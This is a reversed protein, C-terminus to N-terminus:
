TEHSCQSPTRMARARDLQRILAEVHVWSLDGEERNEPHKVMYRLAGEIAKDSDVAMMALAVAEVLNRNMDIKEADIKMHTRIEALLDNLLVTM